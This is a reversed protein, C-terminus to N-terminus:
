NLKWHVLIQEFVNLIAQGKHPYPLKKLAIIKKQLNFDHDIYHATLCLYELKTSSIWIDSTLCVRSGLATFENLVIDSGAKFVTRGRKRMGGDSLYQAIPHSFLIRLDRGLMCKYKKQHLSFESNLDILTCM